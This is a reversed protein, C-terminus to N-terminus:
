SSNGGNSNDTNTSTFWSPRPFSMKVLSWITDSAQAQFTPDALVRSFCEQTMQATSPNNLVESAVHSALSVAHERVRDDDLVSENLMQKIGTSVDDRNILYLLWEAAGQRATPLNIALLLLNSVQQQVETNECLWSVISESTQLIQGMVADTQLAKTVLSALENESDNFITQFWRTVEVRLQRDNLIDNLLQRSFENATFQFKENQMGERIVEAGEYGVKKKVVEWNYLTAFGFVLLLASVAAVTRRLSLGSHVQRNLHEVAHRLMNIEKLFFDGSSYIASSAASSVSSLGDWLKFRQTQKNSPGVNPRGSVSSQTRRPFLKGRGKYDTLRFERAYRRRSVPQICQSSVPRM